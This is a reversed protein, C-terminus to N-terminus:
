HHEKSPGALWVEASRGGTKVSKKHVLGSERLQDLSRRILESPVHHRLAQNIQTRTLGAEANRLTTLLKNEVGGTPQDGFIFRASDECFRWVELAANLHRSRVQPSKDLLAYTLALRRAQAESRTIAAGFLGPADATLRPYTAEWLAAANTSLEVEEQCTAFEVSKKLRQALRSLREKSIGGGNPLLKSRQVCAWLFRNAFGNFVDTLNLYRQLDHQTTHAIISIHAESARKPSERTLVQLPRGDWGHRLTTSLTNGWRSMVRLVASFEDEFVLLRKDPAESDSGDDAIAQILGEGTSLGPQVREKTWSKDVLRFMEEVFGWSTGKRGRASRGVLAVFLNPSHRTAGIKFHPKRGVVNGFAGLFQLALAAPDAETHPGISSIIDGLVGYMADKGLPKPWGPIVPLVQDNANHKHKDHM